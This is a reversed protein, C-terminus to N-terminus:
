TAKDEDENVDSTIADDDDDMENYTDNDSDSTDEYTYRSCAITRKGYGLKEVIVVLASYVTLTALTTIMLVSTTIMYTSYVPVTVM